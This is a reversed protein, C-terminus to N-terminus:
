TDLVANEGGFGDDARATAEPDTTWSGDVVFMYEYRRGPEVPVQARWVGDAGRSLPTAEPRWGNFDGAVRVVHAGPAVLALEARAPAPAAAMPAPAADPPAAAPYRAVALAFFALAATATAAELASLRLPALAEALRALLPRRPPPMARVRRMVVETFDPGPVPRPQARGLRAVEALAAARARAAPPLERLVHRTTEADQRSDLLERLRDDRM